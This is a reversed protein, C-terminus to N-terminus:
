PFRWILIVLRILPVTNSVRPRKRAQNICLYV